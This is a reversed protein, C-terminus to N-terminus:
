RGVIREASDLFLKGWGIGLSLLWLGTSVRQIFGWDWIAEADVGTAVAIRQCYGYATAAADEAALLEACWGRLVVGLDYAREVLLGDPDVFVYGSEAGARPATVALANGPHPDGHCVVLEMTHHADSRRSAYTQAREVVALSCPRGLTPWLAEILASLQGARDLVTASAPRAVLWALDLTECLLDISREPSPTTDYMSPGLPEQLMAYRSLDHALLRVYGRGQAAAITHIQDVVAPDPVGVKLVADSGDNCRVRVVLNAGNGGALPAGLRFSWRRELDALVDPLAALWEEGVTGMAVIRTRMANPISFV